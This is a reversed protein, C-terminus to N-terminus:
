REIHEGKGGNQKYMINETNFNINAHEGDQKNKMYKSHPFSVDCMAAM